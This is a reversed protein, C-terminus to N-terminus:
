FHKNKLLLKKKKGIKIEFIGHPNQSNDDEM